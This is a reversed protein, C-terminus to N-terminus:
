FDDDGHEDRPALTLVGGAPITLNTFSSATEGNLSATLPTGDSKFLDLRVTVSATGTNAIVVETAWGGGKAFQPLLIAGNGGVNTAIQPLATTVAGVNTVPLTSFNRGRFRLGIVAFPLPSTGESAVTLTGTFDKPISSTSSFLETVFKSVQQHSPVAVSGTALQTGDSKRLTLTVNINSNNPNVLSVGLNKSLRGSKEVFLIANTTLGPALVGAQSAGDDGGRLGFTEFAVLGSATGSPTIVAYGVQVPSQDDHDDHAELGKHGEDKAFALATTFVVLFLITFLKRV